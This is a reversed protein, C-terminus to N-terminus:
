TPESQVVDEVPVNLAVFCYRTNEGLAARTHVHPKNPGTGSSIKRESVRPPAAQYSTPSM